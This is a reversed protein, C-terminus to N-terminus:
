TVLCLYFRFIWFFSKSVYLQKIEHISQLWLLDAQFRLNFLLCYMKFALYLNMSFFLNMIKLNSFLYIFLFMRKTIETLIVFYYRLFSVLGFSFLLVYSFTKLMRNM